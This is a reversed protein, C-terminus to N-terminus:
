VISIPTVGLIENKYAKLEAIDKTLQVANGYIMVITYDRQIKDMLGLLIELYEEENTMAEVEDFFQEANKPSPCVDFEPCNSCTIINAAKIYKLIQKDKTQM